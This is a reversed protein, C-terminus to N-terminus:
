SEVSELGVLIQFLEIHYLPRFDPDRRAQLRYSERKNVCRTLEDLALDVLGLRVHAAALSYLVHDAGPDSKLAREFYAIAQETEGRNLEFVGRDYLADVTRPTTPPRSLRQDCVSIYTKARSIMETEEPFKEAFSIFAERAGVFDHRNFQKIAQGFLKVSATTKQSAPSEKSKAPPPSAPKGLTRTVRKASKGPRATVRSM